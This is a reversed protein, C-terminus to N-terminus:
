ESRGVGSRWTNSDRIVPGLQLFNAFVHNATRKSDDIGSCEQFCQSFRPGAVVNGQDREKAGQRYLIPKAAEFCFSYETVVAVVFQCSRTALHSQAGNVSASRDRIQSRVM